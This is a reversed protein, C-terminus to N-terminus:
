HNLLSISSSWKADVIKLRKATTDYWLQGKMPSRPPNSSSSAHSALLKVFNDNLYEGYGAYNKGVLTLSTTSQDIKRDGLIVLTSGDPNSITYSM